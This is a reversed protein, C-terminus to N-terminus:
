DDPCLYVDVSHASMWDLVNVVSCIALVAYSKRYNAGFNASPNAYESRCTALLALLSVQRYITTKPYLFGAAIADTPTVCGSALSITHFSHM